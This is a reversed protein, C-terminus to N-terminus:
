SRALIEVILDVAVEANEASVREFTCNRIRLIRPGTELARLFSMNNRYSGTVHMSFPVVKYAVGAAPAPASLQNLRVLRVRNTKELSYFYGLNVEMSQEEVLSKEIRGLADRLAALDEDIRTRLALTRILREGQMRADEHKQRAERHARWLYFDLAGFGIIVAVCAAMFPRLRVWGLIQLYLTTV